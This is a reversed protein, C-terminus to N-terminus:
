GRILFWFYESGRIRVRGLEDLLDQVQLNSLILSAPNGQGVKTTHEFLWSCDVGVKLSARPHEYVAELQKLLEDHFLYKWPRALLELHFVINCGKSSESLGTYTAMVRPSRQRAIDYLNIVHTVCDELRRFGGQYSRLLTSEKCMLSIYLVMVMTLIKCYTGIISTRRSNGM